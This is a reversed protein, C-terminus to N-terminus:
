NILEIAIASAEGGGICLAAIGRQLQHNKLAHILTVLIRAGTAGIPHGLACAGGNINVREPAINLEHIAAMTVCAFAENIEFLDVSEISWNIKTLLGKIAQIPATTFWAPQHAYTYHGIIRAIPTISLQTAYTATTLTVAAAGDAISSANAATITGNEIFAPRLLPIKEAKIRQPGEDLTIKEKPLEVAIIENDFAGNHTATQARTLSELAFQDQQERNFKFQTACAEAHVGMSQDDYADQLGDKQMHDLLQAHGYRYGFRAQPILYPARTMNEMGGAIMIQQSGAKISDYANLIAQLGSACMKNITVCPTHISLGAAIAAQRAPAQGLGATLVCGMNVGDIKSVDLKTTAFCAKIAAAGLEPTPTDKYYGNFSGIPTRFGNLIVIDSM